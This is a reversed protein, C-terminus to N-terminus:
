SPVNSSSFPRPPMFSKRNLVLGKLARIERRVDEEEPNLRPAVVGPVRFGSSSLAYTQTTLYGTFDIMTQLTRQFRNPTFVTSNAQLSSRLEDISLLLPPPTPPVPPAYSWRDSRTQSDSSSPNVFLPSGNLTHWLREQYGPDSEIWPLKVFLERYLEDTSPEKEHAVFDHLVCRLLSVEPIDQKGESAAVIDDVTRCEAYPAPEKAPEPRPLVSFADKQTEKLGELSTTLRTLLDRHHSKISRRALSSQTIRPLLFRYYVILIAASGGAIWTFVRFIGALLNPLNSPPPQPYTRPPVPPLQAPLERMLGNVEDESLGKEALFRRKYEPEEYRSLPSALFQRARELLEARGSPESVIESPPQPSVSAETPVPPQEPTTENDNDAM